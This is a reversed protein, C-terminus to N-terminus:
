DFVVKGVDGGVLALLKLGGNRVELVVLRGVQLKHEDRRGETHSLSDLVLAFDERRWRRWILGVTDRSGHAQLVGYRASRHMNGAVTLLEARRKRKGRKDTERRCRM